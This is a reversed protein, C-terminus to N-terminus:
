INFNFIIIKFNFYIQIKNECNIFYELIHLFVKKRYVRYETFRGYKQSEYSQMIYKTVIHLYMIYIGLLTM